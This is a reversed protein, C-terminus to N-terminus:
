QRLHNTVIIITQFFGFLVIMPSLVGNAISSFNVNTLMLGMVNLTSCLLSLGILATQLKSKKMRYRMM